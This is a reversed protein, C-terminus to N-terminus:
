HQCRPCWYTLRAESGTARVAIREGCNRCTKGGRGYVWLKENPDLSRTTRRGFAPSLTQRKTMVNAQLQDRAVDLIRELARDDLASVPVFPDIGSVFLIESKFVNGIGAVARQDLLADAIAMPGRDRLRRLAEPRDFAADLLDPGLSQLPRSRRLTRPTLFEAVPVNFGVAVVEGAAILVRLDRAPRKWRAGAPYLHWTGNMRMHTRLVLGDSFTMLIHKGRSTVSVVTRGAIPADADVRNLAPFTSEFATVVKGALALNM